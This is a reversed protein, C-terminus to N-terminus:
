KFGWHSETRASLRYLQNFTARVLEAAREREKQELAGIRALVREDAEGAVEGRAQALRESRATTAAPVEWVCRWMAPPAFQMEGLMHIRPHSNLLEHLLSSGSRGAGIIVIPSDLRPM